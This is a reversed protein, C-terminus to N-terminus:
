HFLYKLIKYIMKMTNKGIIIIQRINKIEKLIKIDIYM